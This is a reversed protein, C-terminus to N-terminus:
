RFIRIRRAPSTAQQNPPVCFSCLLTKLRKSSISLRSGASVRFTFISRSKLRDLSLFRWASFSRVRGFAAIQRWSM